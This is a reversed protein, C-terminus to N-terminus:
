VGDEPGFVTIQLRVSPVQSGRSVQTRRNQYLRYCKMVFLVILAIGVFGFMVIVYGQWAGSGGDEGGSITSNTGVMEIVSNINILLNLM